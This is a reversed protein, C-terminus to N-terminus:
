RDIRVLADGLGSLYAPGGGPTLIVGTVAGPLPAWLDPAFLELLPERAAKRRDWEAVVRESTATHSRFAMNVAGSAPDVIHIASQVPSAVWLRGQEDLEVNDPGSVTAVVRRDSLDGSKVSLRYSTIRDNLTEAFYIVGRKEDIAIGNAFSLGELVRRAPASAGHAAPPAIRYLAGDASYKNFPEFLRAVSDPGSRNETSQTFWIAGASDRVATNVGFEHTYIRETAETAINVRYIAGTFVDAVLVHAGDPEMAVGNPGATQAPPAHVYGAQAFRGFPRTSEDAAIVRLGHEQDAVLIRGDRLVVGDEPRVLGKAAPVLRGDSAAAACGVLAAASVVGALVIARARWPPILRM